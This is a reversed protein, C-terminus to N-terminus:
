RWFRRARAMRAAEALMEGTHARDSDPVCRDGCVRAGRGDHEVGVRKCKPCLCFRYGTDQVVYDETPLFVEIGLRPDDNDPPGCAILVHRRAAIALQEAKSREDFTPEAPKIELWCLDDALAIEFDPLYRGGPLEYGEPEYDWRVGILDMFVAWRAELRSRFKVGRYETEIPRLDPVTEDIIDGIHKV